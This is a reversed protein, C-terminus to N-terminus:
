SQDGRAVVGEVEIGCFCTEVVHRPTERDIVIEGVERAQGQRNGVVAGGGVEADGAIGDGYPAGPDGAMDEVAGPGGEAEASGPDSQFGRGREVGDEPVERDVRQHVVASIEEGDGAGAVGGDVGGERADAAQVLGPASRELQGDAIGRTAGDFDGLAGDVGGRDVGESATGVEEDVTAGDGDRREIVEHAGDGQGAPADGAGRSRESGACKGYFAARDAGM